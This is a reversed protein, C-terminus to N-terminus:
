FRRRGKAEPKATLPDDPWSHKPYRAKLEKKVEFYASRWFSELDVTTQVPRFSPSLLEITVPVPNRGLQPSKVWGFIEQLRVSCYIASDTYRLQIKSGSPVEIMSPFQQDWDQKLEYPLESKWVGTTMQNKVQELSKQDRTCSRWIHDILNFDLQPNSKRYWDFRALDDQLSHEIMETGDIHEYIWEGAQTPDVAIEVADKLPTELLSIGRYGRVRKSDDDFEITIKEKILGSLNADIEDRSIEFYNSAFAMGNNDLRIDLAFGFSFPPDKLRSGGALKGNVFVREPWARMLVSVLASETKESWDVATANGLMKSIKLTEGGISSLANKLQSRHQIGTDFGQASDVWAALRAGWYSVGLRESEIVICAVRPDIGWSLVKKGAATMSGSEILHNFELREVARKVRQDSPRDLWHIKLFDDYTARVGWGALWLLIESLDIRLLEPTEFKRLQQNEGLSWLRVARGARVRGARGARQKASAASIRVTELLNMGAKEEFRNIKSLGSDIVTGVNPLTLSTEAINTSLIIAPPRTPDFVRAQEQEDLKSFLRLVPVRVQQELIRAVRNIEPAGPLFVLTDLGNQDYHDAIVQAQQESRRGCEEYDITVPHVKGPVRIIPAPSNQDGLFKSIREADITASLIVVRLDPRLSAQIEKLVVLLLDLRASREHFEDLIIGSVRNLDPNEILRKLLIGETMFTLETADSVKTDFRIQYGVERGLQVQQEYAVRKASEKVAWRRPEVVWWEPNSKTTTNTATLFPPLRTTKGAGPEAVIVCFANLEVSRSIETLFADIPLSDSSKGTTRFQM